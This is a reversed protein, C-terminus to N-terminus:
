LIARRRHCAQPPEEGLEDPCLALQGGRHEGRNHLRRRWQASWLSSPWEPVYQLGDMGQRQVVVGVNDQERIARALADWVEPKKDGRIDGGIMWIINPFDKYRKGLFTGYSRAKAEDMMDIQSGWICDMAIYIGNREARSVIYDLHEWYGYVGDRSFKDFDFTADNAQQGYINFTPIANLVQIQEVNYGALREGSLYYDVEERTLREPMLWSTNGLWFFPRGNEHVVYRKNKSVTLKGNDWPKYVKPAGEALSVACFAALAVLLSSFKFRKM